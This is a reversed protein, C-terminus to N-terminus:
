ITSIFNNFVVFPATVFYLIMQMGLLFFAVPLALATKIPHKKFMVKIDSLTTETHPMNRFISKMKAGKQIRIKMMMCINVCGAASTLM